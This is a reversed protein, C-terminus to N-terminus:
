NIQNRIDINAEKYKSIQYKIKEVVAKEVDEVSISDIYSTESLVSKKQSYVYNDFRTKYNSFIANNETFYWSHCTTCGYSIIVNVTNEKACSYTDDMYYLSLHYKNNIQLIIDHNKSLGLLKLHEKYKFIVDAFQKAKDYREKIVIDFKENFKDTLDDKEAFVQKIQNLLDDTDKSNAKKDLDEHVSQAIVFNGVNVLYKTIYEMIEDRTKNTGELSISDDFLLDNADCTDDIASALTKYGRIILSENDYWFINVYTKM